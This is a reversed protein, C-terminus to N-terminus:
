QVVLTMDFNIVVLNNMKIINFPTRPKINFDSMFIDKSSIFRFLHPSLKNIEVALLVPKTVGAITLNANVHYHHWTNFSTIPEKEVPLANILDIKIFPYDDAKLAKHLDKNMMKNKCSILETKLFLTAKNFRISNTTNNYDASLVSSQFKDNCFCQFSSLNTAGTIFLRSKEHIQYNIQIPIISSSLIFTLFLLILKM